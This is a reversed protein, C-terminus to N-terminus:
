GLVRYRKGPRHSGKAEIMEIQFTEVLHDLAHQVMAYYQTNNQFDKKLVWGPVWGNADAHVPIKALLKRYLEQITLQEEPMHEAIGALIAADSARIFRLALEMDSRLVRTDFRGAALGTAVRVVKEPSRILLTQTREDEVRDVEERFEDLVSKAGPGWELRRRKGLVQFLRKLKDRLPGPVKAADESVERYKPMAPEHAITLRGLLGNGIDRTRCARYFEEATSMGIISLAPNEIQESAETAGSTTHYYGWNIGWIDRLIESIEKECGLSKPDNLRAMMGGFEDMVCLVCHQKKLVRILGAGSKFRGPGIRNSLETEGVGAAILADYAVTRLTEKCSGSRAVAVYYGHTGTGKSGSPGAIRQGVLVGVVALAPVVALIESPKMMNALTYERLEWVVGPWDEVGPEVEVEEEIEVEPKVEIPAAPATTLIAEAQAAKRQERQEREQKIRVREAEIGDLAADSPWWSRAEKLKGCFFARVAKAAKVSQGEHVAELIEDKIAVNIALARRIDGVAIAAEFAEAPRLERGPNDAQWQVWFPDVAEVDVVPEAEAAMERDKEAKKRANHVVEDNFGCTRCIALAGAWDGVGICAVVADAAEQERQGHLPETM